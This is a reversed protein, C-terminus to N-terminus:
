YKRKGEKARQNGIETKEPTDRLIRSKGHKNKEGKKRPGSKSFPRVREPSV